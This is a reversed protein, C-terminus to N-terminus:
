GDTRRYEPAQLSEVFDAYGDPRLKFSDSVERNPRFVDYKESM